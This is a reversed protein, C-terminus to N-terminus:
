CLRDNYKQLDIEPLCKRGRELGMKAAAIEVIIAHCLIAECQADLSKAIEKAVVTDIGLNREVKGM